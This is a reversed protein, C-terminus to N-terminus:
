WRPIATNERIKENRLEKYEPSNRVKRVLLNKCNWRRNKVYQISSYGMIEKILELQTGDIALALLKKCDENLLKFHKLVLKRKEMEILDEVINNDKNQISDDYDEVVELKWDKSNVVRLWLIRCTSYLFTSFSSTLFDPNKRAKMYIVVLADQFIDKADEESGSNSSVYNLVLPYYDLYIKKLIQYDEELLGEVLYKDSAKYM